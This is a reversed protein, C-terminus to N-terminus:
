SGTQTRSTLTQMLMLLQNESESNWGLGVPADFGGESTIRVSPQPDSSCAQLVQKRYMLRFGLIQAVEDSGLMGPALLNIGDTITITTEKLTFPEGTKPIAEIIVPLQAAIGPLNSQISFVPGLMENKKLKVPSELASYIGSASQHFYRVPSMRLSRIFAPLGYAMLSNQSLTHDLSHWGISWHGTRRPVGDLVTTVLARTGSAQHNSLKIPWRDILIEESVMLRTELDLERVPALGAESVLACTAVLNKSQSAVYGRCAVTEGHLQASVTPLFVNLQALFAERTLYPVVTARAHLAKGRFKVTLSMNQGFNPQFRFHALSVGGEVPTIQHASIDGRGEIGLTFDTALIDNAQGSLRAEALVAETCWPIVARRVRVGGTEYSVTLADRADPKIETTSM